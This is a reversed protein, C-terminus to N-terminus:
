EKEHEFIMKIGEEITKYRLPVSFIREDVEQAEKDLERVESSLHLNFWRYRRVLNAMEATTSSTPNAINVLKRDCTMAYMMGDIIDDIYTFRRTNRGCNYLTVTADRMLHWLLTGQRPKDGYVNHFRCGTANPCCVSAYLEDFRKSVGYMSTMNKENATSSSAYVMKVGREACADAVAMFSDINDMRIQIRDNNFVSTQAALHFVCDAGDMLLGIDSAELGLKRDVRVIEAGSRDLRQCLSKGIFGESGTVIVKM